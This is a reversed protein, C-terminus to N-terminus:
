MFNIHDRIILIDGSRFKTNMSGVVSTLIINKAGIESLCRVPFTVESMSYGEYFHVRGSLLVVNKNEWKGFILEGKHGSVSTPVFGPIDAYSFSSLANIKKSLGGLGSGTVLAVQPVFGQPLRSKLFSVASKLNEAQKFATFENM